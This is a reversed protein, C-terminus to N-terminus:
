KLPFFLGEDGTGLDLRGADDTKNRGLSYTTFGKEEVKFIMPKGSWPDRPVSPLYKPTLTALTEPLKGHERRYREVAIGAEAAQLTSTLTASAEFTTRYLDGSQSSYRLTVVALSESCRAKLDADIQNALKMKEPFPKDSAELYRQTFELLCAIDAQMPRKALPLKLKSYVMAREAQLTMRISKALSKTRLRSQFERLDESAFPVLCLKEALSQHALYDLYLGDFQSYSSPENEVSRSAILLSQLAKSAGATDRHRAKVELELRLLRGALRM